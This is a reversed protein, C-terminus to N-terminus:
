QVEGYNRKGMILEGIRLFTAGEKIADEFDSSTGMSLETCGPIAGQSNIFELLQRCKEFYCRNSSGMRVLPPLTMLGVVELNSFESIKNIDDAVKTWNEPKHAEFGFKTEEGSLNVEVFVRMSRSNLKCDRDIKHATELQDISHIAAFHAILHKIKRSQVHGIMHWELEDSNALYPVKLSAEEPYNEGLIKAGANVVEQIKEVPQRKTVVVLKVDEIKRNSLVCTEKIKDNIGRFNDAISAM